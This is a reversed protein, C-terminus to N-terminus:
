EAAAAISAVIRYAEKRASGRVKTGEPLREVWGYEILTAIAARASPAERLCNPGSKMVDRLTFEPHEWRELLWKRLKEAREIEASINAADSLRLAESLYFEALTIADAMTAGTVEPAELDSWATLVGAIRAVQEAAKSAYGTIGSYAGGPAQALEVRDAFAGLAAHAESSLQLVQPQTPMPRDLIQRLRQAFPQLRFDAKHVKDQTRTGITSPPECILFRPLFGTDTTQRDSMFDRVVGPQAMLHIALRKDYLVLSGDGGRTRKIPNGSWLDNFAALTRLRNDASMAYGGFLAGGEDSFIGLSPSGEAYKRVLGEFTPESVTRDRTPPELPEPVAHINGDKVSQDRERKWIAQEDKWRSIEGRRAAAADREYNRLGAMLKSDCSSKREGSQAITLLYLSTPRSGDLTEVDM